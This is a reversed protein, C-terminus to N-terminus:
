LKLLREIVDKSTHGDYEPAKSLEIINFKDWHKLEYHYTIQRPPGEFETVTMGVIFYDDFMTGDSHQKSKWCKVRSGLPTVYNDFYKFLAVCLALRHEYLEDMSHFEDGVNVNESTFKIKVWDDENERLEGFPKRVLVYKSELTPDM